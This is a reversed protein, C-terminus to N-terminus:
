NDNTSKKTLGRGDMWSYILAQEDWGFNFTPAAQEHLAAGSKNINCFPQNASSFVLEHNDLDQTSILKMNLARKWEGHM